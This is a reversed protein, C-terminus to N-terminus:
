VPMAALQALSKGMLMGPNAGETDPHIEWEVLQLTADVVVSLRPLRRATYAALIEEIDGPQSVMDAIVWADESCLAGGQAITPPCAHVADGIVIIRGDHWPEDNVYIWEIEQFNGYDAESLNERIYDFPGHYGSMLRKMEDVDSLGNDPRVPKTLVFAYCLDKSIPTYGAKYEPGGFFVASCDMEPTRRTVVRWIGLGSSKKKHTIGVKERTKSKIGDAAIVLDFKEKSGNNFTVEVQDGLNEYDELSTGLRVEVGLEHIMDVLVTQVDSRLAGMTGFLDEGGTKAVPMRQLLNGSAHYMSIDDFGHAKELIRDLAGINKFSRLANGQLTIGHGVGYWQPAIEALTVKVGKQALAVAAVTGTIGGGVVLVNKVTM